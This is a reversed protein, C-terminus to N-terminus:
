KTVGWDKMMRQVAADEAKKNAAPSSSSTVSAFARVLKRKRTARNHLYSIWAHGPLVPGINKPTKVVAVTFVNDNADPRFHTVDYVSGSKAKLVDQFPPGSVTEPIKDFPDPVGPKEKRESLALGIGLAALLLLTPVM